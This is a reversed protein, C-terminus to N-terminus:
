GAPHSRQSVSNPAEWTQNTVQGPFKALLRSQLDDTLSGTNITVDQISELSREVMKDTVGQIVPDFPRLIPAYGSLCRYPRDPKFRVM